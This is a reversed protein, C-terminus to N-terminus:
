WLAPATQMLQPRFAEHIRSIDGATSSNLKPHYRSANGSSSGAPRDMCVLATAALYLLFITILWILFIYAYAWEHLCCILLLQHQVYENSFAHTTTYGYTCNKCYRVAAAAADDAGGVEGGATARSGATTGNRSASAAGAFRGSDCACFRLGMVNSTWQFVGPRNIIAM